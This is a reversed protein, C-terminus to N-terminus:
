NQSFKNIRRGTGRWQLFVNHTIVHLVSLGCWEAKIQKAHIIIWELIGLDSYSLFFFFVPLLHRLGTTRCKDTAWALSIMIFGSDEIYLTLDM